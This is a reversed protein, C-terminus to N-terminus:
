VGRSHCHCDVRLHQAREAVAPAPRQGVHREAHRPCPPSPRRGCRSRCTSATARATSRWGGRDRCRRRDAAVVDDALALVDAPSPAARGGSRGRRPASPARSGRPRRGVKEAGGCRRATGSSSCPRGRRARAVVGDRGERGAHALSERERAHQQLLRPTTSSSSGYPSSSGGPKPSTSPTIPSRLALPPVVHEHRRVAPARRSRQAVLREHELLSPARAPAPARPRVLASQGRSRSGTGPSRACRVPRACGDVGPEPTRSATVRRRQALVQQQLPPRAACTTATNTKPAVASSSNLKAIPGFASASRATAPPSGRARAAARTSASARRSSGAGLHLM